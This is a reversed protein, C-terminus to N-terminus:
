ARATVVWVRGMLRVAGDRVFEALGAALRARAEAKAEPALDRLRPSLPGSAFTAEAAAEAPDPGAGFTMEAEAAAFSVERWGAAQLWPIVVEPEAWGFPGPAGPPNRPIPPLLDGVLRLPTWVWPNEKVNRWATVSLAAGPRMARRLNAWAPVPDDFFMAGFRSHLADFPADFAVTAADALVFGPSLGAAAARARAVALLDPSIDLGTVEAGRRCLELTSAGPGCGLDLVRKGAVDGLADLGPKQLEALRADQRDAEAAWRRGLDGAWEEATSM